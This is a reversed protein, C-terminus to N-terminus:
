PNFAFHDGTLLFGALFFQYSSLTTIEADAGDSVAILEPPIIV